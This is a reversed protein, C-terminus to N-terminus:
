GSITAMKTSDAASYEMHPNIYMGSNAMLAGKCYGKEAKSVDAATLQAKRGM